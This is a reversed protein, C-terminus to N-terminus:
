QTRALDKGWHALSSEKLQPLFTSQLHPYINSIFNKNREIMLDAFQKQFCKEPTRKSSRCYSTVQLYQLYQNNHLGFEKQLEQFSKLKWSPKHYLIQRTREWAVTQVGQASSGPPFLPNGTIPSYQTMSVSLTIKRRIIQWAVVPDRIM